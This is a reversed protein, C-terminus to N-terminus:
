CSYEVVACSTEMDSDCFRTLGIIAMAATDTITKLATPTPTMVPTMGLESELPLSCCIVALVSVGCCAAAGATASFFVALGAGLRVAALSAGFRAV